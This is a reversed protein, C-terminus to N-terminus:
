LRSVQHVFNFFESLTIIKTTLYPREGIFVYMCMCLPLYQYYPTIACSRIWMQLSVTRKSNIMKGNWILLISSQCFDVLTKLDSIDKTLNDLISLKDLLQMVCEQFREFDSYMYRSKSRQWSPTQQYLSFTPDSVNWNIVNLDTM